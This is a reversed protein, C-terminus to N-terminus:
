ESGPVRRSAASPRRLPRYGHGHNLHARLDEVFAETSTALADVPLTTARGDRLQLVVCRSGGVTAAVVDEVQTWGARRVGAGRVFRVRYGAEELRVVEPRLVATAGLSLVAAAAVVLGTGLVPEPLGLVAVLVALLMVAAGLLALGLGMLRVVFPGSFRYTSTV